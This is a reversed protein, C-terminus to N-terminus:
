PMSPVRMSRQPLEDGGVAADMRLEPPEDDVDVADDDDYTEWGSM